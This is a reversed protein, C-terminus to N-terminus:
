FLEDLWGHEKLDRAVLRIKQTCTYPCGSIKLLAIGARDELIYDPLYAIAKGSLVLDELTKISSTLYGIRRTFRDDRWGDLSQKSGLEGFVPLSPSVFAHKLVEDVPFVRGAKAGSYLAHGKGVYTRFTCEKLLRSKLEPPADHTALALHAEGRSVREFARAESTAQFEFSARRYRSQVQEVIRRSPEALLVEPGALVVHVTGETGMLALRLSEESQVLESGRKQLLRGRDTLRIGRGERSFLKLQFETELRAIAKSLSGPSVRLEESARHINQFRAVGLFYKLEYTEM